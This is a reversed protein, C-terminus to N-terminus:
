FLLRKRFTAECQICLCNRRFVINVKNLVVINVNTHARAGELFEMIEVM